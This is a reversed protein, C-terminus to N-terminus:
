RKRINNKNQFGYNRITVTTTYKVLSNEGSESMVEKISTTVDEWKEGPALIINMEHYTFSLTGDAGLSTVSLGNLNASPLSDVWILDSVAGGGAVGGLSEGRGVVMLFDDPIEVLPPWIELIGTNEYFSYMPFDILIGHPSEGEIVEGDTHQWIEIFVYREVDFVGFSFAGLLLVSTLLIALILCTKARM